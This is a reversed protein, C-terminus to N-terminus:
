TWKNVRDQVNNIFIFLFGVIFVLFFIVPYDRRLISEYFLSGLGPWEFITEIILAGSLLYGFQMTVTVLIPKYVNPLVHKLLVGSTSIGKALATRVYDKELELSFSSEIIRILLASFSLALATTPLIIGSFQKYSTVPFLPVQIAFILILFTALAFSPICHILTSIWVTTKQFIGKKQACLIGIPLSILLSLFIASSSLILSYPLRELVLTSVEKKLLISKGFDFHIFNKLLESYAPLADNLYTSQALGTDEQLFLSASGPIFKIAGYTFSFVAFSLILLETLFLLIGLL